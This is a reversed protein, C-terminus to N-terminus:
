KSRIAQDVAPMQPARAAELSRSLRRGLNRAPAEILHHAVWAVLLTLLLSTFLPTLGTTPFGLKVLLLPAANHFLYVGYSLQGAVLCVRTLGSGLSDGRGAVASVVLAYGFAAGLGINGSLWVPATADRGSATYLSFLTCVGALWAVGLVLRLLAARRIAETTRIAEATRVSVADHAPQGRTLSWAWAGLCFEILLGPLHIGAIGRLTAGEGPVGTVTLALHLAAAAGLLWAFGGRRLLLALLPLLVYFEVEPPLSWFAANYFFAVEPSHLTQAMLLHPGLHQWAGPDPLKLVAYALLAVVYLPYLRFFRRVFHPGAALPKGFFYPAFVYGSLVFFLDVGTSAFGWVGPQETLFRAYHVAVVGLAAFGRLGEIAPDDQSSSLM